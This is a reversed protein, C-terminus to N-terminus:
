SDGEIPKRPPEIPLSDAQLAPSAPSLPKIGPKPLDGPPPYPLGSRYEQRSFGISLCTQHAVPWPTVFLQVHSFHSLVCGHMGKLARDGLTVNLILAEANQSSM